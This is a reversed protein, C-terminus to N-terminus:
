KQANGNGDDDENGQENALSTNGHFDVGL